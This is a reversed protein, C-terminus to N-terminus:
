TPDPKSSRTFPGQIGSLDMQHGGVDAHLPAGPGAERGWTWSSVFALGAGLLVDSHLDTSSSKSDILDKKKKKGIIRKKDVVWDVPIVPMEKCM